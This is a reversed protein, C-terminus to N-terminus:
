PRAPAEGSAREGSFGKAYYGTRARVVAKPYRNRTAPALELRVKHFARPGAPPASYHISYRVRLREIMQKLSDGPRLSEIVEGGTRDAYKYITGHVRLLRLFGPGAVIIGNLVADAEYLAEVVEGDSVPKGSAAQLNDSIALIARRGKRGHRRLYDASFAVARTIDSDLGTEHDELWSDFGASVGRAEGTFDQVVKPQTAFIIVAVRDGAHLADLASSAAAAVQHQVERMSGSIDLLLVLDLPEDERGFYEIRQPRGEDYAIFDDPTLDAVVRGFGREYVQADLRVLSVQTRFVASDVDAAIATVVAGARLWPSVSPSRRM